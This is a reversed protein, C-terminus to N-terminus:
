PGPHRRPESWKGRENRQCEGDTLARGPRERDSGSHDDFEGEDSEDQSERGRDSDAEDASGAQHEAEEAHASEEREHRGTRM